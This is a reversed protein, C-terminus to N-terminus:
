DILGIWNPNKSSNKAWALSSSDSLRIEGLVSKASAVIPIKFGVMREKPKSKGKSISPAIKPDGKGTPCLRNIVHGCRVPM